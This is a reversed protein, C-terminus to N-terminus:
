CLLRGRGVLLYLTSGLGSGCVYRCHTYRHTYVFYIRLCYVCLLYTSVFYIRLYLTSVSGLPRWSPPGGALLGGRLAAGSLGRLAPWFNTFRPLKTCLFASARKLENRRLPKPLRHRQFIGPKVYSTVAYPSVSCDPEPIERKRVVPSFSTLRKQM